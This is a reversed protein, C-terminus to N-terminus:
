RHCRSDIRWPSIWLKQSNMAQENVTRQTSVIQTRSMKYWGRRGTSIWQYFNGEGSVGTAAEGGM